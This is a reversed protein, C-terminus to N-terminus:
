IITINYKKIFKVPHYSLKSKRLGAIGLDQERNIYRYNDISNIYEHFVMPYVGHYNNNGKEFHIVLTDQNLEEGIIFAVPRNEIYLIGGSVDLAEYNLLLDDIAKKEDNVDEFWQDCIVKIDSFGDVDLDAYHWDYKKLFQNIHNKKKRYTKGSLNKLGKFDYIYDFDNRVEKFLCSLESKMLIEVFREEVKKMVFPRDGLFNKMMNISTLLEEKKDYDGIPQSLYYFNDKVNIIWLYNNLVIYHFNYKNRWVYLNTFSLESAQIQFAELYSRIISKDEIDLKIMKSEKVM